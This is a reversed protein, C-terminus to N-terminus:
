GSKAPGAPDPPSVIVSRVPSVFSRGSILVLARVRWLGARPRRAALRVKQACGVRRAALRHYPAPHRTMRTGLIEVRAGCVTRGFRVTVALRKVESLRRPMALRPFVAPVVTAPAAAVDLTVTAPAGALGRADTATYTFADPGVYGPAPTYTATAALGAPAGITVTGHAPASAVAFALPGAADAARYCSAFPTTPSLSGDACVGTASTRAPVEPGLIAGSLGVEAPRGSVAKASAAAVTVGPIVRPEALVDDGGAPADADLRGDPNVTARLTYTGPALGTVDIWQGGDQSADLDGWGPSIGGRVLPPDAEGALVSRSPQCWTHDAEPDAGTEGKPYYSPPAPTSPSWSDVLCFGADRRASARDPQGPVQLVYEAAQLIRWDGHGPETAYRLATGPRDLVVVGPLGTPEANPDQPQTGPVGTDWLAQRVVNGAPATSSPALAFVDLAGGTNLIVSDFRYLLRGPQELADVFVPAQQGASVTTPLRPVLHPKVAATAAPAAAAALAVALGIIRRPRGM